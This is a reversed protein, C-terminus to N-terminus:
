HYNMRQRAFFTCAAYKLKFLGVVPRYDSYALNFDPPPERRSKPKRRGPPALTTAYNELINTRLQKKFPEAIFPFVFSFYTSVFILCVILDRHGGNPVRPGLVIYFPIPRAVRTTAASCFGRPHFLGALGAHGM